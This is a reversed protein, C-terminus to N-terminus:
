DRKMVRIILGNYFSCLIELILLEVMNLCVDRECDIERFQRAKEFDEEEWVIKFTYLM